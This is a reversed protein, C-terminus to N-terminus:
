QKDEHNKSKQYNDYYQGLDHMDIGLEEMRAFLARLELRIFRDRQRDHSQAQAGGTVFFGMGRRTLILGESELKDYARMVTNPNVQLTVALERVSPIREQEPWHGAIIERCAYDYIQLWIPQTDNFQM